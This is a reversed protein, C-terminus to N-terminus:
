RPLPLGTSLWIPNDELQRALGAVSTVETVGGDRLVYARDSIGLSERFRHDALLIGKGGFRAEDRILASIRKSHLPMLEAFPEDLLVFRCASRLVLNIEILRREGGSFRGMRQGMRSAFEPFDNLFPRTDAGYHAFASRPSLHSPVFPHQPLYRVVGPQMCPVPCPRDNYRIHKYEGRLTGFLMQMLTSKGSGNLGVLAVVEGGEIRAYADQLIIRTGYACRASDIELRHGAM